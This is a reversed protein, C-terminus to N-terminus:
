SGHGRISVEAERPVTSRVAERGPRRGLAVLTVGAIVLGGGVLRTPSLQEGLVVWALLVTFVPELTTGVAAGGSGLRVVAALFTTCAAFYLCGILLMWALGAPSPMTALGGGGVAAWVVVVVGAGSIVLASALYGNVGRTLRRAVLTFLATALAAGLAFLTGLATSGTGGFGLVLAAGSTSLLVAGLTARHLLETRLVLGGLAVMAPYTYLLLVATSAPMRALAELLFIGAAGSSTGLLLLSLARRGGISARSATLSVFSWALVSSILARYPAVTIPGVGTAYASKIAISQCAFAVAAGIVLAVGVRHSLDGRPAETM